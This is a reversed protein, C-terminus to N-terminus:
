GELEEWSRRQTAFDKRNEFHEAGNLLVLNESLTIDDEDDDENKDDTQEVSLM